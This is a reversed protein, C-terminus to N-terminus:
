RRGHAESWQRQARRRIDEWTHEDEHDPDWGGSECYTLLHLSEHIFLGMVFDQERPWGDDDWYSVVMREENVCASIPYDRGCWDSVQARTGTLVPITRLRECEPNRGAEEWADRASEIATLEVLSTERGEPQCGALLVLLLWRM